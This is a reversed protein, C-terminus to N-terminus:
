RHYPEGRNIKVARYLQELAILRAMEHLFTLPSLSWRLDARAIASPHLGEPGGILLTLRRTGAREVGALRQAVHLSDLLEGERDLAWVASADAIRSLMSTAEARLGQPKIEVVDVSMYPELRVSIRACGDRLYPERLKDVAIVSLNM